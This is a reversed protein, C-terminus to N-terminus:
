DCAFAQLGFDLDSNPILYHYYMMYTGHYGLHRMIADFEHISLEDPDVLDVFTVKGNLYQRDPNWHFCWWSSDEDFVPKHLHRYVHTFFVLENTIFM